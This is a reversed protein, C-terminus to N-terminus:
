LQGLLARLRRLELLVGPQPQPDLLLDTTEFPDAWLDFLRQGLGDQNVILKYRDERVM